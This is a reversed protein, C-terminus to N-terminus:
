FSYSATVGGYFIDVDPYGGEYAEIDDRIDSDIGVADGQGARVAGGETRSQEDARIPAAGAHAFCCPDLGAFPAIRLSGQGPNERM